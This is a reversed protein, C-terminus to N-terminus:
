ALLLDPERSVARIQRMFEKSVAASFVFGQVLDAGCKRVWELQGETEVGEVVLQYGLEKALSVVGRFLRQSKEDFELNTVFARDIKVKDAPLRHLHSLSSYGTGFDDISTQVGIAQLQSLIAAMEDYDQLFVTETIEICLRSPDLAHQFLLTRLHGVLGDRVLDVVSLNVAVGIGSDWRACEEVASSLMFRTLSGIIGIEEAVAVFSSPPIHGLKPHHWRCLAEAYRITRGDTDFIPQYVVNLLEGDIAAGIENRIISTYEYDSEMSAEFINWASSGEDRAKNLAYTARGLSGSLDFHENGSVSIGASLSMDIKRGVHVFPASLMELMDDLMGIVDSQEPKVSSLVFMDGGIRGATLGNEKAQIELRRSMEVLLRDGVDHGYTENVNRFNRGNLLCVFVEASCSAAARAAELEKQWSERDNLRTLKDLRKLEAIQNGKRVDDTVDELIMVTCQRSLGSTADGAVGKMADLHKFRVFLHRGDAAKMVNGSRGLRAESSNGLLLSAQDEEFLREAVDDMRTIFPAAAGFVDDAHRNKEIIAGREDFIVIGQSTGAAAIDARRLSIESEAPGVDSSYHMYRVYRAIEICIFTIFSLLVTTAYYEPDGLVYGLYPMTLALPGGTLFALIRIQRFSAFHHGIVDMLMSIMMLAAINMITTADYWVDAYAAMTGISFAQVYAATLHRREWRAIEEVTEVGSGIRRYRESFFVYMGFGVSGFAPFILFNPDNGLQWCAMASLLFLVFKSVSITVRRSLAAIIHRRIYLPFVANDDPRSLRFESLLM